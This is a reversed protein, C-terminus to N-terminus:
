GRLFEVRCGLWGFVGGCLRRLAYTGRQQRCCFGEGRAASVVGGDCLGFLLADASRFGM